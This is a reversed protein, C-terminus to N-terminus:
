GHVPQNPDSRGTLRLRYKAFVSYAVDLVNRVGPLRTLAVLWGLGVAAYLQRFVEVGSIWERSKDRGQISGMLEPMTKGYASPDFGPASIDTFQIANRKGDLARLMDIERSCVPCAGDFFVEVPNDDTVAQSECPSSTESM